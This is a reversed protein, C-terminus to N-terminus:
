IGLYFFVFYQSNERVDLNHGEFVINLSIGTNKHCRVKVLYQAIVTDPTSSSM